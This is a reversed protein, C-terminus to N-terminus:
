GRKEEEQQGESRAQPHAAVIQVHRQGEVQDCWEREELAVTVGAAVGDHQEQAERRKHRKAYPTHRIAHPTDGNSALAIM